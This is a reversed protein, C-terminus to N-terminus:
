ISKDDEKTVDIKKQGRMPLTFYFTAGESPASEVWIRGGHREVIKQSLALGIGTGPYEEQTHLRQFVQFIRDAQGPDVGIGNDAVSFVWTNDEGKAKIHIRPPVDERRFKLANTILNQFVQALQAPEAHVTPLSTHTITANSEEIITHLMTLTRKVLAETDIPAFTQAHTEIRSLDLLAQIMEQMREAGDVAYHLFIDAQADLQNQYRQNLLEVYGKVMRAPEQLDHSVVYAFQELEKNSRALDAAYQEIQRAAEKRETIDRATSLIAPQGDYDIYRSNIEVPYTTGDRRRHRAEFFIHKERILQQTREPVRAAHDPTDIDRPTMELLEQRSYGLQQCAVPNVDLFHGELDHVYIEDGAHDFLTRYRQESSRLAAEIARRETVDRFNAIAGYVEGSEDLLPAASVSLWKVDGNPAVIGHEIERVPRRERLAIALPLDEQPYPRGEEDVQQWERGDYTRALIDDQELELIEEAAPNAYVIEGTPDVTVMGDVMTQLMQDLKQESERLSREMELRDTIDITYHLYTQQDIPIWWADWIRDFMELEPVNQPEKTELM